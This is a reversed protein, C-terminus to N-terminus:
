KAIVRDGQQVSLQLAAAAHDGLRTLLEADASTFKRAEKNHTMVWLSGFLRRKEGYLPIVLGEAIPIGCARM